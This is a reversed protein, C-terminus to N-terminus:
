TGETARRGRVMARAEPTVASEARYAREYCQPCLDRELHQSVTGTIILRGWGSQKHEPAAQDCWDCHIRLTM